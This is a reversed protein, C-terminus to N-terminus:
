RALLVCKKDAHVFIKLQSVGITSSVFLRRGNAFHLAEPIPTFLSCFPGERRMEQNCDLFSSIELYFPLLIDVESFAM